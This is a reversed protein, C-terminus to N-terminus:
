GPPWTMHRGGLVHMHLHFVTQGGDRNTNIVTRYGGDAIGELRAVEAAMASLHGILAYDAVDNLTAVHAKPIVLVHTPAQPAIDRFALCHENEAVKSVPIAGSVMRCFFCDDAM